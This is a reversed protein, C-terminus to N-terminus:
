VCGEDHYSESLKAQESREQFALNQNATNGSFMMRNKIEKCVAYRNDDQNHMTQCATLLLVISLAATYAIKSM